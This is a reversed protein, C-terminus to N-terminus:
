AAKSRRASARWCTAKPATPQPITVSTIGYKKLHEQVFGILPLNTQRSISDFAILSTLLEIAQQTLGEIHALASM